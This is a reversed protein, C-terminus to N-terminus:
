YVPLHTALHSYCESVGDHVGENVVSDGVDLIATVRNQVQQKATPMTRHTTWECRHRLRTLRGCLSVDGAKVAARVKM